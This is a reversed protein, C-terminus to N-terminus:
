YDSDADTLNYRPTAEAGDEPLTCEVLRGQARDWMLGFTVGQADGSEREKLIRFVTPSDPEQKNREIGYLNHAWRAIARSGTFHKELVRGGEEHPTGAPTTLHSIFFITCDWALADSAM